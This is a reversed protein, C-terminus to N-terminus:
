FVFKFFFVCNCKQPLTKEGIGRNDFINIMFILVSNCLIFVIVHKSHVVYVGKTSNSFSYDNCLVINTTGVWSDMSKRHCDFTEEGGNNL